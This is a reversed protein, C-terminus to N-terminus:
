KMQGALAETMQTGGVQGAGQPAAQPQTQQRSASVQSLELPSIANTEALIKNFVFAAQPDQLIAPNRAVTTFVTSLTALVAQKDRNENTVDVEVTWEFDKLMDKWTSEGIEDPTFYRQNGLPALSQKIQVSKQQIDSAQMEPTIEQGAIIREILNSNSDKIAKNNVYISDIWNIKEESLIAVIEEKTDMKRKLFPIIHERMMDEIALGKNEVM